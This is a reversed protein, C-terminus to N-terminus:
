PSLHKFLLPQVMEIAVVDQDGTLNKVSEDAPNGGPLSPSVSMFYSIANESVVFLLQMIRRTADDISVLLTCRPFSAPPLLKTASAADGFVITCANDRQQARASSNPAASMKIILPFGVRARLSSACSLQKTLMIQPEPPRTAGLPLPRCRRVM